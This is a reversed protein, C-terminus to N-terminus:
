RTLVKISKLNRQLAKIRKEFYSSIVEHVDRKQMVKM